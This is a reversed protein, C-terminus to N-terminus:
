YDRRGILLSSFLRLFAFVIPALLANLGTELWLAPSDFTYAPVAGSFLLHLLSYLGAKFLTACACLVIPLIVRGLFFTGKMLGVAAGILTRILTNFGLPAASIFDLMLGSFFGTLQGTMTGNIYASFVIIVLVLDPIAHYVSLRAFLTSQLLAAVLSFLTGWFVNKAM